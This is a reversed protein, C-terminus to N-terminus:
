SPNSLETTETLMQEQTSENSPLPPRRKEECEISQPVTLSATSASRSLAQGRITDNSQDIGSIALTQEESSFSEDEIDIDDAIDECVITPQRRPINSEGSYFKQQKDRLHIQTLRSSLEMSDQPSNSSINTNFHNTATMTSLAMIQDSEDALTTQIQEKNLDVTM